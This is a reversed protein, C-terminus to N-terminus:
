TNYSLSFAYCYLFSPDCTRSLHLFAPVLKCSQFFHDLSAKRFLNSYICPLLFVLIYLFLIWAASSGSSLGLTTLFRHQTHPCPTQWSSQRPNPPNNCPSQSKGYSSHPFMPLKSCLLSMIQSM